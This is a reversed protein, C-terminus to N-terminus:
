KGDTNVNLFEEIRERFANRHNTHIDRYVSIRKSQNTETVSILHSSIHRSRRLVKGDVYLEPIRLRQM